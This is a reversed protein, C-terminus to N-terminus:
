ESKARFHISIPVGSLNFHERLQNELYRRYPDKIYQPLNCFFAFHPNQGPLQTIYKIKVNKGKLAPPPYHEIVPLMIKNLQSTSIRQKRNQYVEIAIELSKHIRQKQTVSTFIIPIDNFPALKERIEEEFKKTNKQKEDVLDWKNVLLVIGKKNREALHYISIDQMTLGLTADIMV